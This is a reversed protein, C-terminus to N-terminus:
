EVNEVEPLQVVDLPLSAKEDDDVLVSVQYLGPEPLLLNRWRLVQAIEVDRGGSGRPVEIETSMNVIENTADEDILKITVMRKSGYEAPSALLKFM